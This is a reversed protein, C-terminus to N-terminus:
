SEVGIAERAKVLVIEEQGTQIHLLSMHQLHSTDSRAFRLAETTVIAFVNGNDGRGGDLQGWRGSTQM